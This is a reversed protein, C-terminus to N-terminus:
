MEKSMRKKTIMLVAAFLTCGGGIVYLITTGMGGTEPLETGSLNVVNTSLTGATSEITFSATAEDNVTLEGFQPDASEIDYTANITFVIDEAQNYGDPVTTEVLKYQGADLGSFEFTTVDKIEECVAVYEGSEGVSADFKYLTFGAGELPNGDKDVKNVITKYTFVIVEDDPTEATEWSQAPNNSFELNAVNNNGASGIVANDNLTATYEVVVKTNANITFGQNTLQKLDHFRVTLEGNNHTIEPNQVQARADGNVIYVVADNNYTLGSSLTDHIIYTYGAFTDLNEPLTGTIQFPVKDGIDYDSGDQWESTTGTSDNTEQVKKELTPISEKTQVTINEQGLTDLMILSYADPDEGTATEAILYYGQDMETFKNNVSQKEAGQYQIRQYMKAAFNKIGDADLESIYKIIEEDSQKETIEKLADRYKDNVSYAFNTGDSQLNLLKFASYTADETGIVSEITIDATQAHVTVPMAFFMTCVLGFTLFKKFKRM